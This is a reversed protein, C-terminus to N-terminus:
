RHPQLFKTLQGGHLDQNGPISCSKAEKNRHRYTADISFCTISQPLKEPISVFGEVNARVFEVEPIQSKKRLRMESLPLRISSRARLAM